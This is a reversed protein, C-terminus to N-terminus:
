IAEVLKLSNTLENLYNTCVGDEANIYYNLTYLIDDNILAYVYTNKDNFFYWINNNITINNINGEQYVSYLFDMENDYTNHMKQIIFSCNNYEDIYEYSSYTDSSYNNKFGSPVTYDLNIIIEETNNNLQNFVDDYEERFTFIFVILYVVIAIGLVIISVGGKKKCLSLIKDEDNTSEKIKTIDKNIKYLYLDKFKLAVIFSLIISLLSSLTYLELIYDFILAILFSIVFYLLSFLWLKRYLLYIISFLFTPWSFNSNLIKDYNKGVYAEIYKEESM